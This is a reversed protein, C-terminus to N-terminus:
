NVLFKRGSFKFAGKLEGEDDLGWYDDLQGALESGFIDAVVLRLNGVFGTAFVVVDAPIHQGNSCELGDPTYRTPLTDSVIKIQFMLEFDAGQDVDIRTRHRAIEGFSYYSGSVLGKSIKASAGVDMYHGGLREFIYYSMDGEEDIRFGARKLAEFREWAKEAKNRLVKNGMTRGLVAPGSFFLRDAVETPVFENYIGQITRSKSYFLAVTTM